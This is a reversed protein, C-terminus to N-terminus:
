ESDTISPDIPESGPPPFVARAGHIFLARVKDWFEGGLVFFSSLLILDGTIALLMRWAELSPLHSGLYPALWAFVLPLAFLVLGIRYRLPGVREPPGHQKLFGAAKAKLAAFGAKGMVAVAALMLIEPLGIALFGSILGKWAAPLDSRAVLPIFLPCLFGVVLLAIGGRIRWATAPPSTTMSM